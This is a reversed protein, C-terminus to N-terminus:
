LLERYLSRDFESGVVVGHLFRPLGHDDTGLIDGERFRVDNTDLGVARLRGPVRETRVELAQDIGEM